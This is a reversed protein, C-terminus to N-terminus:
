VPCYGRFISSKRTIPKKNKTKKKNKKKKNNNKLGYGTARWKPSFGFEQRCPASSNPDENGEL